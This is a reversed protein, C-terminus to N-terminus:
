GFRKKLGSYHCPPLSRSSYVALDSLIYTPFVSRWKGRRRVDEFQQTGWATNLLDALNDKNEDYYNWANAAFKPDMTVCIQLWLFYREFPSLLAPPPRLGTLGKLLQEKFVASPSDHDMALLHLNLKIYIYTM